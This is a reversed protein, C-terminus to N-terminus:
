TILMNIRTTAVLINTGYEKDHTELKCVIYNSAGVM